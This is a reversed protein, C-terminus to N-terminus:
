ETLGDLWLADLNTDAIPRSTRPDRVDRVGNEGCMTAARKHHKRCADSCFQADRRRSTFWEGCDLCQLEYCKPEALTVGDLVEFLGPRAQRYVVAVDGEYMCRGSVTVRRQDDKGDVPTLQLARDFAGYLSHHGSIDRGGEGPMKRAHFSCVVTTGAAAGLLPHIVRAVDKDGDAEVYGVTNRLTDVILVDFTERGITELADGLSGGWAYQMRLDTGSCEHIALRIKWNPFPEETLYLVRQGDGVWDAVMATLLETKGVKPYSYLLNTAGAMIMGPRGLVPLTGVPPVEFALVEDATLVSGRDPRPDPVFVDLGLRRAEAEAVASSSLPDRHLGRLRDTYVWEGDVKIRNWEQLRGAGAPGGNSSPSPGTGGEAM